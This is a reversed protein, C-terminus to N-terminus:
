RDINRVYQFAEYRIRERLEQTEPNLKLLKSGLKPKASPETQVAVDTTASTGPIASVYDSMLNEQQFQRKSLREDILRRWSSRPGSRWHYFHGSLTTRLVLTQRLLIRDSVCRCLRWRRRERRAM